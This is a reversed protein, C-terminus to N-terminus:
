PMATNSGKSWSSSTRGASHYLHRPGNQTANHPLVPLHTSTYAGGTFSGQWARLNESVQPMEVYSYLEDLENM